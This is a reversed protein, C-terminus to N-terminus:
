RVTCRLGATTRDYRGDTFQWQFFLEGVFSSPIPFRISATGVSSTTTTFRAVIPDVYLTSGPMHRLPIAVQRLGQLLVAPTSRPAGALEIAFFESGRAPAANAQIAAYGWGYRETKSLAFCLDQGNADFTQRPAVAQEISVIKVCQKKPQFALSLGRHYDLKSNLWISRTTSVSLDARLRVVKGELNIGSKETAAFAWHSRSSRDFTLDYLAGLSPMAAGLKSPATGSSWDFREVRIGFNGSDEARYALMYRGYGGRIIPIDENLSGAGFRQPASLSQARSARAVYVDDQASADFQESWAVLWPEDVVPVHNVSVSGVEIGVAAERLVFASGLTAASADLPCAALGYGISNGVTARYRFVWLAEDGSAHIGGVAAHGYLSLYLSGFAFTSPLSVLTGASSSTDGFPHVYARTGCNVVWHGAGHVPAVSIKGGFAPSSFSGVKKAGTYDVNCLYLDVRGPRWTEFANSHAYLVAVMMNHSASSTELGVRASRLSLPGDTAPLAMLKTVQASAAATFLIPLLFLLPALARRSSAAIIM